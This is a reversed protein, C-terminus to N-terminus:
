KKCPGIWKSDVTKSATTKKGALIVTSKMTGTYHKPTLFTYTGVLDISMEKPDGCQMVISVANGNEKIDLKKCQGGTDKMVSLSKVPDKAEEPTMCDSTVEPKVPKGDEEGTETDQWMGPELQIAARAPHAALLILPISLALILHSTKPM